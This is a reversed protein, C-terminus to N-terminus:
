GLAALDADEVDIHFCDEQIPGLRPLHGVGNGALCIKMLLHKRCMRLM